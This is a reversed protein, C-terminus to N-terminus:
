FMPERAQENGRRARELTGREGRQNVPSAGSGRMSSSCRRVRHAGAGLHPLTRPAASGQMARENRKPSTIERGFGECGGQWPVWSFGLHLVGRRPSRNRGGCM